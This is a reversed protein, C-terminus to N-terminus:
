DGKRFDIVFAEDALQEEAEVETANVNKVMASIDDLNQRDEFPLIICEHISSPIIVIKKMGHESAFTELMSRNLIAGAGLHNSKTTVVWMVDLGNSLLGLISAPNYIISDEYTNKYATEWLTEVENAPFSGVPFKAIGEGLDVFLFQEIGALFEVDKKIVDNDTKRQLGVKINKCIFEKDSFKDICIDPNGHKLVLDAITETATEVDCDQYESLYVVMGIKGEQVIISEKKVGNKNIEKEFITKNPFRGQLKSILEKTNMKNEGKM